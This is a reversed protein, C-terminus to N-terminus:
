RLVLKGVRRDCDRTCELLSAAGVRRCEVYDFNPRGYGFRRNHDYRDLLIQGVWAYTLSLCQRHPFRQPQITIAYRRPGQCERDSVHCADNDFICLAPAHSHNDQSQVAVTCGATGQAPIGNAAHHPYASCWYEGYTRLQSIKGLTYDHGDVEAPGADPGRVERPADYIFMSGHM